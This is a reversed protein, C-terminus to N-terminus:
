QQEEATKKVLPMIAKELTDENDGINVNDFLHWKEVYTTSKGPDLTALHGLTEVEITDGATYTEFNCGFDPYNAGEAYPFRKVFLTGERHYAAWGQKNAAGIKQPDPYKADCRLKIFKKGFTWRPDSMNTFHWLVLQRAPLLYDDHSIFPEQPFICTGGCNMVSLAWPALEIPWVGTNKLIHTVIVGTGERELKVYMEKRILSAPEVNGVARVTSNGITEVKVPDNDPAYSRPSVEPAHWLRHGGWPHWDGLENKVVNEPGLEAFINTGGIHRYCIVRPGLDATVFVETTDNSLRYCKGYHSYTTEEIKVPHKDM